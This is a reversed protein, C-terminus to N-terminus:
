AAILRPYFWTQVARPVDRDDASLAPAKTVCGKGFHCAFASAMAHTLTQPRSGFHARLRRQEIAVPVGLPLLTRLVTTFEDLTHYFIPRRSARAEGQTGGCLRWLELCVCPFTRGLTTPVELSFAAIALAGILSPASPYCVVAM